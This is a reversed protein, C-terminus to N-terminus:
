WTINALGKDFTKEALKIYGQATALSSIGGYRMVIFVDGTKEALNTLFTHRSIHFTFPKINADIAILKLMRNIEADSNPFLKDNPEKDKLYPLIIKEPKGGFLKSIPLNIDRSQKRLKVMIKTLRMEGSKGVFHSPTITGIDSIRLGTYCSFLFADRHPKLRHGMPYDLNEIKKVDDDSLPTRKSNYGQVPFLKFNNAKEASVQMRAACYNVYKRLTKHHRTITNENTYKIRLYHDWKSALEYDINSMLIVPKFERLMSITTKNNKKTGKSLNSNDLYTQIYDIMNIRVKSHDEKGTRLLNFEKSSLDMGEYVMTSLIINADEKVKTVLRISQYYNRDNPDITNYKKDWFDTKVGTSLYVRNKGQPFYICVEVRSDNKRSHKLTIIPKKM